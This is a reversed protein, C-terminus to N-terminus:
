ISLDTSPLVMKGIVLHLTDTLCAIFEEYQSRIIEVLIVQIILTDVSVVFDIAEAIGMDCMDGPTLLSLSQYSNILVGIDIKYLCIAIDDIDRREIILRHCLVLSDVTDRYLTDIGIQM